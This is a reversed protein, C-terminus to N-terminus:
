AAESQHDLSTTLKALATILVPLARYGKIRHFSQEAELLGAAMWRMATRGNKWRTVNRSCERVRDFASAVCNPSRLTTALTPPLGLHTMTLTM